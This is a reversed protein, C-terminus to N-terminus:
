PGRGSMGDDIWRVDRFPKMKMCHVIARTYPQTEIQFIDDGAANQESSTIKCGLSAVSTDHKEDSVNGWVEIECINIPEKESFIQIFDGTAPGNECMFSNYGKGGNKTKKVCVENGIKIKLGNVRDGCCDRRQWIRVEKVAHMKGGFDAKWWTPGNGSHVCSGDSWWTADHRGDIARSAPANNTTEQMEPNYLGILGSDGQLRRSSATGFFQCSDILCVDWGQTEPSGLYMTKVSDARKSRTVYYVDDSDPYDENGSLAGDDHDWCEHVSPQGCAAYSFYMTVEDSFQSKRRGACHEAVYCWSGPCWCDRDPNAQRNKASCYSYDMDWAECKTGYETGYFKPRSKPIGHNNGLCQCSAYAGPLTVALLALLSCDLVRM